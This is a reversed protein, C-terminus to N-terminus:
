PCAARLAQEAADCAQRITDRTAPSMGIAAQWGQFATQAASCLLGRIQANSCTCARAAYADCETVGFSAPVNTGPPVHPPTGGAGPPTSTADTGFVQFAYAGQGAYVKLQVRYSGSTQPCAQVIPFNDTAQDQAVQSGQPDFLFMDLDTISPEAVGIVTYCRGSQLDVQFDAEDGTNGAGTVLDNAPGRGGGYQEWIERMRAGLPGDDAPPGSAVTPSLPALVGAWTTERRSSPDLIWRDQPASWLHQEEIETITCRPAPASGEPARRPWGHEDLACLRDGRARRTRADAHGDRNLDVLEVTAVGRENLSPSGDELVVRLQEHLDDLDFIRETRFSSRLRPCPGPATAWGYRVRVEAQGDGDVDAAEIQPREVLAAGEEACVYPEVEVARRVAGRGRDELDVVALHLTSCGSQASRHIAETPWEHHECRACQADCETQRAVAAAAETPHRARWEEHASYTYLVVSVSGDGQRTTVGAVVSGQTGHHARLAAAEDAAEYGGLAVWPGHRVSEVSSGCSVGTLAV